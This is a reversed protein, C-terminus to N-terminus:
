ARGTTHVGGYLAETPVEITGMSDKEIRNSMLPSHNGGRDRAGKLGYPQDSSALAPRQWQRKRQWQRCHCPRPMATTVTSRNNYFVTLTRRSTKCTFVPSRAPVKHHQRLENTIQYIIFASTPKPALAEFTQKLLAREQESHALPSAPFRHPRCVSAAAQPEISIM